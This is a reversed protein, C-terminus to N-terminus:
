FGEYNIQASFSHTMSEEFQSLLRAAKVSQLTKFFHSSAGSHDNFFNETKSTTYRCNSFSHLLKFLSPHGCEDWNAFPM